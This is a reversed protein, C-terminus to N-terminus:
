DADKIENPPPPLRMLWDREEMEAFMAEALDCALIALRKPDWKISEGEALSKIADQSIFYGLLREALEGQMEPWFRRGIGPNGDPQWYKTITKM